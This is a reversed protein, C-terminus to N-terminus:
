RPNYLLVSWGARLDPLSLQKAQHACFPIGWTECSKRSMPIGVAFVILYSAVRLEYSM